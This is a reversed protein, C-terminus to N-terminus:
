IIDLDELVERWYHEHEEELMKIEKDTIKLKPLRSKLDQQMWEVAQMHQDLEELDAVFKLIKDERSM